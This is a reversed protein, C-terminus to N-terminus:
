DHPLSRQLVVRTVLRNRVDIAVFRGARTGDDLELEMTAATLPTGPLMECAIQRGRLAPDRTLTTAILERAGNGSETHIGGEPDVLVVEAAPHLLRLVDDESGHRAATLLRDLIENSRLLENARSGALRGRPERLRTLRRKVRGILSLESGNGPEAPPLAAPEVPPEPSYGLERLLDGAARDFAKLDARSLAGRWKGTGITDGPLVNRPVGLEALAAEVAEASHPLRLRDFLREVAAAPDALLEEYHVEVYRDLGVAERGGRVCRAWEEAAAAISRSLGRRVMSLSADRGDRIVHIVGADPYLESILRAHLAAQPTREIVYRSGPELFEGFATDCLDRVADLLVDRDAYMAGVQTSGKVGHHFRELLPVIGHPILLDESPVASVEPHAAIMRQVLYTGSRRAGFCLIV